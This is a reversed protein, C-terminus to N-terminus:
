PEGGQLRELKAAANPVYDGLGLGPREPLQLFGDVLKLPSEVVMNHMADTMVQQRSGTEFDAFGPYEIMVGNVTTALVNLHAAVAMVTWPCHPICLIGADEAMRAVRLLQTIGMQQADPQVVDAARREVFRQFDLVTTLSEGTAIRVPSDATLAAFGDVDYPKLPEEFFYIDYRELLRAAKLAEKVTWGEDRYAGFDLMLRIDPGIADRMAALADQADPGFYNGWGFKIAKFGRGVYGRCELAMEDATKM